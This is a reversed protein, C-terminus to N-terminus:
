QYESFELVDSVWLESFELVDSVWLESFAFVDSAWLESFKLCNLILRKTPTPKKQRIVKFLVFAM